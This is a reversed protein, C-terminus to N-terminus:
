GEKKKASNSIVIVDEYVVKPDYKVMYNNTIEKQIERKLDNTVGLIKSRFARWTEEPIAVESLDLVRKQLSKIEQDLFLFLKEKHRDKTSDM